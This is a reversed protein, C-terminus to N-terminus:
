ATLRSKLFPVLCQADDTGVSLRRSGSLEIRACERGDINWTWGRFPVWHIGWGEILLTRGRIARVMVKYPVRRRFVPLPGFAILLHDGRDAVRLWHFSLALLEWAVGLGLALPAEGPNFWWVVVIVPLALAHLLIHIRGHQVHDYGPLRSM